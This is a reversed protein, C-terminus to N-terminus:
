PNSKDLNSTFSTGFIVSDSQFVSLGSLVIENASPTVGVSKLKLFSAFLLITRCCGAAFGVLTHYM